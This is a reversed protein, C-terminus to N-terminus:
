KMLINFIKILKHLKLNISKRKLGDHERLMDILLFYDHGIHSDTSSRLISDKIHDLNTKALLM